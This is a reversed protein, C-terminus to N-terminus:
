HWADEWKIIQQKIRHTSMGWEEAAVEVAEETGYQGEWEMFQEERTTEQTSV